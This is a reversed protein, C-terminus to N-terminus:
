SAISGLTKDNWNYIIASSPLAPVHLLFSQKLHILYKPLPVSISSYINPSLWSNPKDVYHWFLQNFTSYESVLTSLHFVTFIKNVTTDHLCIHYQNHWLTILVSLPFLLIKSGIIPFYIVSELLMKSTYASFLHLFHLAFQTKCYIAKQNMTTQWTNLFLLCEHKFHYDNLM